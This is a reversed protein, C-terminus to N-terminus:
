VSPKIATLVTACALELQSAMPLSKCFPEQLQAYPDRLLQEVTMSRFKRAVPPELGRDWSSLMMFLAHVPHTSPFVTVSQVDLADEFLRRIGQSTANFYHHPYGHLPQLFPISCFLEGGPKLVRSIEQACRIPDRTHELVAVSIVADFTGDVFPLHEGVGLVDTTDYDVIEFNVVDRYYTDRRGAGCDLLLGGRRRAIMNGVAADYGNFSISDTDVIRAEDRLATTLFDMKADRWLMPMDTRIFPQLRALKEQRIVSIDAAADVDQQRGEREGHRKFHVLGAPYVGKEVAARVDPNARLYGVESYNEMTARSRLVIPDHM